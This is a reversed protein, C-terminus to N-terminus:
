VQKGLSAESSIFSEKLKFFDRISGHSRYLLWFILIGFIFTSSATEIFHVLRVDAPMYPNPVIHPINMPISMFLGTLLAGFWPKHRLMNIVPLAFGVWLLARFAQFPILGPTNTAVNRIQAFFSGPDTGQYFEQVAPNQWAVYYGFGFYFLEYLIIIVGLKLAWESVSIGPNLSISGQESRNYKGFLFIASVVGVVAVLGWILIQSLIFDLPMTLVPVSGAGMIEGFPTLFVLAEIQGVLTQVGFFSFILGLILAWGSWSSNKLVGVIILSDVTTVLFLLLLTNGAQETNAEQMGTLAVSSVLVTVILMLTSVALVKLVFKGTSKLEM